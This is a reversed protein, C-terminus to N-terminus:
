LVGQVDTLKMIMQQASAAIWADYEDIATLREEETVYGSEVMQQGRSEAVVSWIRVKATFNEAGRTYVEDAPLSVVDRFGAKRFLEPLHLAIENDMGADARWQLFAQYFQRMSQPPSPQWELAVHNYDLVSVKGGPALLSKFKLLAEYPNGLWQLVRASVILDFKEVPEYQFLDARLLQLNTIDAHDSQGKAILHDSSDIGVATGTPGTAKALGATIAGTGCGVDLIRMGPKISPIITAYSNELSRADLIVSTGKPM